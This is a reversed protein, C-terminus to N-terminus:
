LKDLIRNRWSTLLPPWDVNDPNEICVEIQRLMNQLLGNTQNNVSFIKVLEQYENENLDVFYSGIHLRRRNNTDELKVRNEKGGEESVTKDGLKLACEFCLHHIEKEQECDVCWGKEPKLTAIRETVTLKKNEKPELVPSLALLSKVEEWVKAREEVTSEKLYQRLHFLSYDLKNDHENEAKPAEEKSKM